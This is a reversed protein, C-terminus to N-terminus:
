GLLKETQGYRREAAARTDEWWQQNNRYWDITAALGAAFDTYRPQWGLGAMSSPDIAYRRDHGPRDSVWDFDDAERGFAM